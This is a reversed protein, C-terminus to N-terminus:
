GHRGREERKASAAAAARILFGCAFLENAAEEGKRREGRPTSV